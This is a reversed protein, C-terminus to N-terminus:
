LRRLVLGFFQPGDDGITTIGGLRPHPFYLEMPAFDKYGVKRWFGL